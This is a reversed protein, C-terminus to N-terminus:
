WNGARMVLGMGPYCYLIHLKFEICRFQPQSCLPPKADHQGLLLADTPQM